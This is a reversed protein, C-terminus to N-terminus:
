APAGGHTPPVNWLWDFCRYLDETTREQLQQTRVQADAGGCHYTHWLARSELQVRATRVFRQREFAAFAHAPDTPNKMMLATLSSADELAMGAGQALSQLTAHASDGLLTVRGDAWQRLPNRDAISWRRELNVMSIVDRVEPQTRAATDDIYNRYGDNDTPELGSPVRFVAVINMETRERLPYYIVHFGDGTWMTVGTRKHLSIPAERMPVITRHAVYGTDRPADDPHMQARLRSRLGDAGILACGEISEGAETQVQVADSTQSYGRVTTAQNLDVCPLQRVAKLLIEHLDVRHIAIYPAPYRREFAEGKLPVRVLQEGTHADLLLLDDPLYSARRVEDGLGLRKLVPLVNPGIQVGYGIPAIEASQELLRVSIDQQGLGLAAAVGGLGGGVILVPRTM